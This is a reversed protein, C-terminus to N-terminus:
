SSLSSSVSVDGTETPETSKEEIVALRFLEALKIAEKSADHHLLVKSRGAAGKKTLIDVPARLAEEIANALAEISGAPVLWGSVDNEVLEPIGAIYTSVVPRGLGFAEMLVVPLGEAFSPIVMARADEIQRRVELGSAWGLMTVYQRLNYEEILQEIAHRMGGDGIIVVEFEIKKIALKHVAQILALQGKQECLRGVCILKPVEPVPSPNRGLFQQDLGCHVVHIKNWDVLTAYRYLQSRTFESIAIVYKAHRVKERLALGNARDFEEPGHVTFSYSPGGLLRMLMLVAAPNTGFHAHVHEVEATRIRKHLVCAEALYILFCLLGVDSKLGVQWAMTFARIFRLPRVVIERVVGLLLGIIGCDLLVTTKKSEAIDDADTLSDKTRRITFRLIQIKLAELAQIERRIFTHSPHPYQNVLYAIRM